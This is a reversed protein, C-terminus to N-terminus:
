FHKERYSKTKYKNVVHKHLCVNKHSSMSMRGTRRRPFPCASHRAREGPPLTKGGPAFCICHFGSM